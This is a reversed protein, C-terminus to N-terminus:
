KLVPIMKVMGIRNMVNSTNYKVNIIYASKTLKPVTRLHEDWRLSNNYDEYNIYFAVYSPITITKGSRFYVVSEAPPQQAEEHQRQEPTEGRGNGGGADEPPEKALMPNPLVAADDG